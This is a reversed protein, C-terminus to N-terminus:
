IHILSLTLVSTTTKGNTGTIGIVIPSYGREAKLRDLERAFLEIEGVVELGKSHAAEVLPTVASHEPSIGPSIVVLAVEDLVSQAKDLKLFRFRECDKLRELAPPENRTDTALVTWQRKLLFKTCAEGSAGLGIILAKKSM